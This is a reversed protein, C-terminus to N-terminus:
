KTMKVGRSSIDPKSVFKAHTLREERDIRPDPKKNTDIIDVFEAEGTHIEDEDIREVDTGNLITWLDKKDYDINNRFHLVIRIDGNHTILPASNYFPLLQIGISRFQSASLPFYYINDFVKNVKHGKSYDNTNIDVHRIIDTIKGNLYNGSCINCSVLFTDLGNDPLNYVFAGYLHIRDYYLYSDKYANIMCDAFTDIRERQFGLTQGLEKSFRPLVYFSEHNLKGSWYEIQQVSNITLNPKLTVKHFPDLGSVGTYGDYEVFLSEIAKNVIDVIQHNFYNGPNIYSKKSKKIENDLKDYYLLEVYQVKNFTCWSKTFSIEALGVEWNELNKLKYDGHLYTTFDSINQNNQDITIYFSNNM